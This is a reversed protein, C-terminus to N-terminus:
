QGPLAPLPFLVFTFKVLFVVLPFTLLCILTLYSTWHRGKPPAPRPFDPTVGAALMRDYLDPHIKNAHRPMVAPMQGTQYLRELARAYVAPESVQNEVAMRDARKEMRRGLRIGILFLLLVVILLGLVIRVGAEGRAFLPQLFVLPFLALAVLLRTFIVRRPENLHGLEHACIAKIEDDPHTALLKDTFILQRTLPLAVANSLHTSLVWTARVPVGMQQSMERVLAQLPEPAPKLVRLWRLLRVGLGFLFAMLMLLIGGAIAWTLPGFNEPMEVIGFFLVAWYAFFLLLSAMVLHLWSAFRIEPHLERSMPYSGLLAGLFAPGAVFLLNSEPILIIAAVAFNAAILWLNLRASKRAPWLLRARETWHQSASRRWPILALWNLGWALLGAACFSGAMLILIMEWPM